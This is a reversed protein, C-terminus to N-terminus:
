RSSASAATSLSRTLIPTVSAFELQRIVPSSSVLLNTTMGILSYSSLARGFGASCSAPERMRTRIRRSGTPAATAAAPLPAHRQFSDSDVAHPDQATDVALQIRLAVVEEPRVAGALRAQQLSDKQDAPPPREASPLGSPQDLVTSLGQRDVDLLPFASRNAPDAHLEVIRAYHESDVPLRGRGDRVNRAAERDIDDVRAHVPQDLAARALAPPKDVPAHEVHFVIVE